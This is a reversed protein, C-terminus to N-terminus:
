VTEQTQAKTLEKIKRELDYIKSAQERAQKQVAVLVSNQNEPLRRDADALISIEIKGADEGPVFVEDAGYGESRVLQAGDLANMIPGVDSTYGLLIQQYGLTLLLRM